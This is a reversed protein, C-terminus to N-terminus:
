ILDRAISWLREQPITRHTSLRVLYKKCAPVFDLRRKVFGPQMRRDAAYETCMVPLRWETAYNVPGQFEPVAVPIIGANVVPQYYIEFAKASFHASPVIIRVNALDKLEIVELEALPHAQPMYICYRNERLLLADLGREDIPASVFALDVRGARLHDVLVPTPGNVVMVEVDTHDALFRDLISTRQVDPFSFPLAGVRLAGTMATCLLNAVNRAQGAVEALRRAPDLLALGAPTLEVNRTNRVFLKMGLSTELQRIKHSLWSQDIELRLAARTFSLTEAVAAFLLLLEVDVGGRLPGMSTAPPQHKTIPEFLAVDAVADLDEGSIQSLQM